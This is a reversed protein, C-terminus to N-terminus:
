KIIKKCIQNIVFYLIKNYDNYKHFFLSGIIVKYDPQNTIEAENTYYSSSDPKGLKPM